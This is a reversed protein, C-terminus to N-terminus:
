GRLRLLVKSGRENKFTCEWVGGVQTATFDHQLGIPEQSANMWSFYDSSAIWKGPTWRVSVPSEPVLLEKRTPRLLWQNWHPPQLQLEVFIGDSSSKFARAHCHHGDIRCELVNVPKWVSEDPGVTVYSALAAVFIVLVAGGFLVKSSHKM